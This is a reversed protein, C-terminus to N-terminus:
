GILHLDAEGMAAATELCAVKKRFFISGYAGQIALAATM